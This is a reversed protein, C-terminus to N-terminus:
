EHPPVEAKARRKALRRELGLQALSFLGTLVLYWISAVILLPITQFNASYILQASYLLDGVALV